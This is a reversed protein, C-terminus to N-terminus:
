RHNAKNSHTLTLVSFRPLLARPLLHICVDRHSPLLPLCSSSPELMEELPIDGM